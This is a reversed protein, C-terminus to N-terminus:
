RLRLPKPRARCLCKGVTDATETVTYQFVLAKTSVSSGLPVGPSRGLGSSKTVYRMNTKPKPRTSVISYRECYEEQIKERGHWRESTTGLGLCCCPPGLHSTFTHSPPILRQRDPRLCFFPGGSLLCAERTLTGPTQSHRSAHCSVCLRIIAMLQWSAYSSVSVWSLHLSCTRSNSKWRRWVELSEARRKIETTVTMGKLAVVSLHSCIKMILRHMHACTHLYVCNIYM